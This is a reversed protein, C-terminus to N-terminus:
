STQEKKRIEIWTRCGRLFGEAAHYSAPGTATDMRRQWHAAEAELQDLPQDNWAINPHVALSPPLAALAM